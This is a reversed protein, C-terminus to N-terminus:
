ELRELSYYPTDGNQMWFSVAGCHTCIVLEDDFLIERVEEKETTCFSCFSHKMIM